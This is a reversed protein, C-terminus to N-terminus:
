TSEKYEKLIIAKEGACLIKKISNHYYSMNSCIRKCHLQKDIKDVKYINQVARTKNEMEAYALYDGVKIENGFMDTFM